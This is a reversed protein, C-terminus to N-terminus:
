DGFLKQRLSPTPTPGTIPASREVNTVLIRQPGFATYGIIQLLQNPQATSIRELIEPDGNFIFNPHIPQVAALIDPGSVEGPTLVIINMLAFKRGPGREIWVDLMAWPNVQQESADLYGEIKVQVPERIVMGGSLLPAALLLLLVAATRHRLARSSVPRGM